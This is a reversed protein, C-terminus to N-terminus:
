QLRITREFPKGGVNATVHLLGGEDLVFLFEVGTRGAPLPQLGRYRLQGLVENQDIRQKSSEFLTLTMETQMDRTTRFSCKAEAPLPTDREFLAAVPTGEAAAGIARGAVERLSRGAMSTGDLSDGAVEAARLAAGRVVALESDTAIPKKDFLKTVAARIAPIMSTGGTMVVADVKRPDIGAQTMVQKGISVSREILGASARVFDKRSVKYAIGRPGRTSHILNDARVVASSHVSLERKAEECAFLLSQWEVARTRLDVGSEKYFRDAVMGALASDFDDGGLWPDGGACLVRFASASVEVVCFDFTGGGFDYVAALGRQGRFGHALLAASPETVLVVGSLGAQKAALELASRQLSGFGVPVTFVAKTVDAGIYKCARERLRGLIMACIDTVSYIEGHAEFRVLRDTGAFTRIALPGTLQAVQPDRYPRGLLRKPSVITWQAEAAMRRRAEAGIVVQGPQPFSVVSPLLVEGNEDPVLELGARLLAVCSNSTGFDIGVIPALKRERRLSIGPAGPDDKRPPSIQQTPRQALENRALESADQGPEALDEVVVPVSPLKKLPVRKAFGGMEGAAISREASSIPESRPARAMPPILDSQKPRGPAPDGLASRAALVDSLPMVEAAHSQQSSSQQSSSQQSSSQQSSSQQSSAAAKAAASRPGAAPPLPVIPLPPPLDLSRATALARGPGEHIGREDVIDAVEAADALWDDGPGSEEVPIVRETEVSSFEGSSAQLLVEEHVAADSEWDAMAVRELAQLLAAPNDPAAGLQLVLSGDQWGTRVSCRIRAGGPLVLEADIMPPEAVRPQASPRRERLSKMQAADPQAGSAPIPPRTGAAAPRQPLPRAPGAGQASRVGGNPPGAPQPRRAPLLPEEPPTLVPVPPRNPQRGYHPPTREALEPLHPFIPLDHASPTSGAVRASAADDAPQPARIRAEGAAGVGGHDSSFLDADSDTPPESSSGDDKPAGSRGALREFLGRKPIPETIKKANGGRPRYREVLDANGAARDKKRDDDVFLRPEPAWRASRRGM